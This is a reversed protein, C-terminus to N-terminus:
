QKNAKYGPLINNIGVLMQKGFCGSRNVGSMIMMLLLLGNLFFTVQAIGHM